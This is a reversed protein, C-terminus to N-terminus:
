KGGGVNELSLLRDYIKVKGRMTFEQPAPKCVFSRKPGFKTNWEQALREAHNKIFYVGDYAEGDNMVVIFGPNKVTM